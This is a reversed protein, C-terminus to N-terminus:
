AADSGDDYIIGGNAIRILRTAGVVVRCGALSDARHPVSFLCHTPRIAEPLMPVKIWGGPPGEVLMPCGYGGEVDVPLRAGHEDDTVVFFVLPYKRNPPLKRGNIIGAAITVLKARVAAHVVTLWECEAQEDTDAGDSLCDLFVAAAQWNTLDRCYNEGLIFATPSM